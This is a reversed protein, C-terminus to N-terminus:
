FLLGCGIVLLFTLETSKDLVLSERDANKKRRPILAGPRRPRDRPKKIQQVFDEAIKQQSLKEQTPASETTEPEEPTQPQVTPVEVLREPEVVQVDIM